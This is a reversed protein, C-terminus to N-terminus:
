DEKILEKPFDPLPQWAVVSKTCYDMLAPGVVEGYSWEQGIDFFIPRGCLSPDGSDMGYRFLGELDKDLFGNFVGDKCNLLDDKNLAFHRVAIDPGDDKWNIAVLYTGNKDPLRDKVNIWNSM